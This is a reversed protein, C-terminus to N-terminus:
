NYNLILRNRKNGNLKSNGLIFCRLPVTASDEEEVLLDGADCSLLRLASEGVDRPRAVDAANGKLDGGWLGASPDGGGIIKVTGAASCLVGTVASFVPPQLFKNELFFGLL